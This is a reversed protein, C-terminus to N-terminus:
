TTDIQMLDDAIEFRPTQRQEFDGEYELERQEGNLLLDDVKDVMNDYNNM